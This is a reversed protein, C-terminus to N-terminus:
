ESEPSAADDIGELTRLIEEYKFLQEDTLKSLDYERPQSSEAAQSADLNSAFAFLMRTARQDGKLAAELQKRFLAEVLPVKRSREGERITIRRAFLEAIASRLNIAGKRRGKPNGSVGPKFRTAVPPRGYGVEFDGGSNTLKNKRANRKAKQVAARRM